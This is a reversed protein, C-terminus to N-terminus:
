SAIREVTRAGLFSVLSETDYIISRYGLRYYRIMRRVRLRKLQRPTLGSVFQAQAPSLRPPLGKFLRQETGTATM